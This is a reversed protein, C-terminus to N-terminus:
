TEASVHQKVLKTFEILYDEDDSPLFYWWQPNKSNLDRIIQGRKDLAFTRPVYDGDINFLESIEPELDKNSRILVLSDLSKVVAPDSFLESYEKCTPCWDAYIIFVGNKGSNNLEELGDKYSYWNLESDNWDPPTTDESCSCLILTLFGLVCTSIIRRM